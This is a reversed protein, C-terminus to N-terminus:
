CPFQSLTSSIFQTYEAKSGCSGKLTSMSMYYTVLNPIVQGINKQTFHAVLNPHTLLFNFINSAMTKLLSIPDLMLKSTFISSVTFSPNTKLM